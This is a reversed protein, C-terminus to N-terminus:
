GRKRKRKKEPLVVRGKGVVPSTRHRRRARKVGPKFRRVEWPQNSRRWIPSRNTHGCLQCEVLAVRRETFIFRQKEDSWVKKLVTFEERPHVIKFVRFVGCHPCWKWKKPLKEKRFRWEAPLEYARALSVIGSSPYKKMVKSHYEVAEYLNNFRRRKRKPRGGEVPILVYVAWPYRIAVQNWVFGGQLFFEVNKPVKYGNKSLGLLADVATSRQRQM